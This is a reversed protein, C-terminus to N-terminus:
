NGAKVLKISIVFFGLSALEAAAYGYGEDNPVPVYGAPCQGSSSYASNDDIRPASGRGCTAHNGHLFLIVPMAAMAAPRTPWYIRGWLETERDSLIDPDVASPLKYDATQTPYRALAHANPSFIINLGLPLLLYYFHYHWTVQRQQLRGHNM